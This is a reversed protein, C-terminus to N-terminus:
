NGEIINKLSEIASAIGKPNTKLSARNVILRSTVKAIEDIEFLNNQRLTEGTSVLDVIIESLGSLPALEINGYLKVIQVNIGKKRFFDETIHVYKTAVRLNSQSYLRKKNYEIIGKFSSPYREQIEKIANIGVGNSKGEGNTLKIEFSKGAGKGAENFTKQGVLNGNGISLAPGADTILGKIAFSNQNDGAITLANGHVAVVIRCEGFKLDLPEYVNRHKELLIDKGAIGIDAAGYEVFTPVDSPKVILLKSTDDEYDFILRRSNYDEDPHTIFGAKRLLELSSGLMRGKPIAIKPRKRM